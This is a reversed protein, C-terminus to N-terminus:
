VTFRQIKIGLRKNIIGKCANHELARPRLGLKREIGRISKEACVITEYEDDKVAMFLSAMETAGTVGTRLADPQVAYKRSFVSSCTGSLGLVM